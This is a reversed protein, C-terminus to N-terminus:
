FRNISPFGVRAAAARWSHAPSPPLRGPAPLARGVRQSDVCAHLPRSFRDVCREDRTGRRAVIIVICQAAGDAVLEIQPSLNAVFDGGALGIGRCGSRIELIGAQRQDCLQDIVVNLEPAEVAAAINEILRDFGIGTGSLRVSCRWLAPM